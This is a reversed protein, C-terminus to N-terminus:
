VLELGRERIHASGPFDFEYSHTVPNPEDVVVPSIGRPVAAYIHPVEEDRFPDDSLVIVNSPYFRMKIRSMLSTVTYDDSTSLMAVMESYSTTYCCVVLPRTLTDIDCCAMIYPKAGKLTRDGIITVRTAIYEHVMGRPSLATFYRMMSGITSEVLTTRPEYYPNPAAASSSSIRWGIDRAKALADAENIAMTFFIDNESISDSTIVEGKRIRVVAYASKIAM